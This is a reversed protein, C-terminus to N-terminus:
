PKKIEYYYYKRYDALSAIWFGNKYPILQTRNLKREPVHVEGVINLEKNLVVIDWPQDMASNVTSDDNYLKYEKDIIRYLYEANNRSYLFTYRENSLAFENVYDRDGEKTTDFVTVSKKFHNSSANHATYSHQLYTASTCQYLSDSNYFNLLVKGSYFAINGTSYTLGQYQQQTYDAPFRGFTFAVKATDKSLDIAVFHNFNFFDQVGGKQPDFSNHLYFLKGKEDYYGMDYFLGCTLRSIHLMKLKNEPLYWKKKVLGDINLCYITDFGPSLGFIAENSHFCFSYDLQLSAITKNLANLKVAAGKNSNELKYLLVEKMKWSWFMLCEKGQYSIVYASSTRIKDEDNIKLIVSDKLELELTVNSAKPGSCSYLSLALILLSLFIRM